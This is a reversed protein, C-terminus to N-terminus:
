PLARASLLFARLAGISVCVDETVAPLTAACVRDTNRATLPIVYTQPPRDRAAPAAHHLACSSGFLAVVFVLGRRM